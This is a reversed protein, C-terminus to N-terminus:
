EQAQGDSLGDTNSGCFRRAGCTRRFKDSRNVDADVMYVVLGQNDAYKTEVMDLISRAVSENCLMKIRVNSSLLWRADRRYPGQCGGGAVGAPRHEPSLCAFTM